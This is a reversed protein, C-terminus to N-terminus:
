PTTTEDKSPSTEAEKPEIAIRGEIIKGGTLIYTQNFSLNFNLEVQNDTNVPADNESTQDTLIKWKSISMTWVINASDASISKIYLENSKKNDTSSIKQGNIWTSWNNPSHYLISELYIYSDVKDATVKEQIKTEKKILADFPKENKYADLAQDIKTIEEDGFMLSPDSPKKVLSSAIKSLSNGVQNNKVETDKEGTVKNIINTIGNGNKETPVREEAFSKNALNLIICIACFWSAWCSIKRLKKTPRRKDSYLKCQFINGIPM